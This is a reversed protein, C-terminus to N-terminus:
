GLHLTSGNAGVEFVLNIRPRQKPKFPSEAAELPRYVSMGLM